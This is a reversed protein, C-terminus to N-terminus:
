RPDLRVLDDMRIEGYGKVPNRAYNNPLHHVLADPDVALDETLGIFYRNHAWHPVDWFTLGQAAKERIGWYALGQDPSGAPTFLLDHAHREALLYMGQYPYPSNIMFRHGARVKPAALFDIPGLADNSIMDNDATLEFRVFGPICDYPALYAMGRLWYDVNPRTLLIDDETYLYHSFGGGAEFCDRFVARHTWTLLYPHGLHTPVVIELRRASVAHRIARLDDPDDTDTIVFTTSDDALGPHEATIRSLYRLRDPRFHFTIAIALNAIATPQDGRRAAIATREAETLTLVLETGAPCVEVGDRGGRTIHIEKVVGYLPDSFLRARLSDDAPICILEGDCCLRLVAETIDYFTDGAGYRFGIVAM